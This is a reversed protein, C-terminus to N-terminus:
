HNHTNWIELEEATAARPETMSCKPPNVGAGRNDTSNVCFTDRAMLSHPVAQKEFLTTSILQPEASDVIVIHQRKDTYVKEYVSGRLVVGNSHYYLFYCVVIGVLVMVVILFVALALAPGKLSGKGTTEDKAILM